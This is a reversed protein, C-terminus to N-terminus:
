QQNKGSASCADEEIAGSSKLLKVVREYDYEKAYDLATKVAEDCANIDAGAMILARVNALQSEEAAVMLATRKQENRANVKAGAQILATLVSLNHIEAAKILPTDGNADEVNVKAGRNILDWIIESTTRESLLMLATEDDANRSNVDAGAALLALVMDRNGHRIAHELATTGTEKDRVNVDSNLLLIELETLDNELAAKILPESPESIVVVGQTVSSLELNEATVEVVESIEGVQLQRYIEQHSDELVVVQSILGDSFGAAAFKLSYNGPALGALRYRGEENSITSRLLSFELSSISVVVRPIVAGTPDTITGSIVAGSTASSQQGSINTGILEVEDVPSGKISVGGICLSASFAGAAIRSTRRKIQHLKQPRSAIIPTGEADRRYRVCVSGKSDAILRFVQNKTMESVDHVTLNCHECFRFRHDGIMSDWEATCPSSVKIRNLRSESSM